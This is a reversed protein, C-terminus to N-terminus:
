GPVTRIPRQPLRMSVLLGHPDALAIHLDGGLQQLREQMGLLGNGPEPLRAARGDDRVRLLIADGDRQCAITIRLADGHRIANTVAEQTCRLLTTAAALDSVRVDDPMQLDIHRGHMRTTLVQLGRRLDIGEHRRMQGVVARLDQLLEDTLTSVVRVDEADSGPKGAMARLNLKLATLKHGSIDHLERSLRLREEDRSAQSLLDRTALLEANARALDNHAREARIAYHVTLVAFAQFGMLSLVSPLLQQWALVPHWILALVANMALLWAVRQRPELFGPLQGAVVILLIAPAGKRLLAIAALVCAAQLLVNGLRTSQTGIGRSSTWANVAFAAIFALLALLGLWGRAGHLAPQAMFVQMLVALWTIYAAWSLPSSIGHNWPMRRPPAPPLNAHTM